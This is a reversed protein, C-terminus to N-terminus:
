SIEVLNVFIEELSSEKSQIDSYLIKEKRLVDILSTVTTTEEKSNYTYIVHSEEITLNFPSLSTPLENMPETLKFFLQKKGLKKILTHKDEVLILKGNNIIGIRNAMEEAEEIYHTTLIITVGSEKLTHIQKWMDRRLTVDVGATPEDLFLIKPEHALAKAIMVRRKMGGSLTMLPSNKKDTLSLTDLLQNLYNDNRPLGFIGRSFNISDWVSEFMNITLEQPVLGILKRVSHPSDQLNYGGVTVNGSTLRTLSCIISILTTKGAGNPGLLAFVEGTQIDLSISELASFGDKYTKSLSNIQIIPEMDEFSQM